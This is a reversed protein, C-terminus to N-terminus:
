KDCLIKKGDICLDGDADTSLIREGISVSGATFIMNGDEGIGIAENGNGDTISCVFVGNRNGLRVREKGNLSIEILDSVIDLSGASSTLKVGSASIVGAISQARVKGGSTSVKSYRKALTGMQDLYFFMDRKIRGISIVTDTSQYPYYEMSIVREYIENGRDIVTVGDGLSIREAGGYESLRAIDALSGTINVGPVDIRDRNESDFEWLARRMITEPDTYDSYDRYGEREGYIDASASRIYQVGGNVGGIHADDKGYPYLVTVMDSIDREVSISLMNRTLDLRVGRDGGIREVLAIKYNDAYLEGKGCIEIVSKVVEYPNTKDTSFFDILFGDADVREMGLTSLESDSLLTFPTDSFAYELVETPSVGIMDPVNQLHACPADANYVHDCVAHVTSQSGTEKTVKIIRYAQTDCVAIKNERVLEETKGCPCSFELRRAGNIEYTVKVDYAGALVTGKEFVASDYPFIKLM